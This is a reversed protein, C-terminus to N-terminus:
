DHGLPEKGFELTDSLEQDLMWAKARRGRLTASNKRQPDKRVRDYISAELRTNSDNDHPMLVSFGVITARSSLGYQLM